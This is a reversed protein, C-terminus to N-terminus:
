SAGAEAADAAALLAAAMARAIAPSLWFDTKYRVGVMAPRGVSEDVWVRPQTGWPLEVGAAPDPVLRTLPAYEQLTAWDEDGAAACMWPRTLHDAGRQWANGGNDLVVAGVPPQPPPEVKTLLGLAVCVLCGDVLFAVTGAPAETTGSVHRYEELEGGGLVEPLRWRDAM